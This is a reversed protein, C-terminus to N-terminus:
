SSTATARRAAITRACSRTARPRCCIRGNYPDFELTAKVSTTPGGHIGVVLPLKSGPKYGHPLELVGGVTTGDAAKWTVHQVAPLKWTATQPNLSTLRRFPAGPKFEAAYLDPFQDPRGLVFVGLRGAADTDFAYVVHGPLGSQPLSRLVEPDSPVVVTSANREALFFM